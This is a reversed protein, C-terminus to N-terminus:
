RSSVAVTYNNENEDEDEDGDENTDETSSNIYAIM